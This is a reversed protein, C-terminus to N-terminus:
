FMLIPVSKLVLNSSTNQIGPMNCILL